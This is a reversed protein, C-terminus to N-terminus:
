YLFGFMWLPIANRYVYETDDKVVFGKGDPIDAIQKNGKKHGGIEFTLGDVEFDSVPSASVFHDIRTWAFFITERLTGVNPQSDSLIYAQNPNQLYVKEIKELVKIGRAKERLISILGAKELLLFYKPLTNRSIDLDRALKAYNPKFPVSQALVYLLKRLKQVSAVDMDAFKPIDDEVIQKLVGNLRHAYNGEQFFPFYGQQLYDRFAQLPRVEDIPFVVKGSLIEALTYNPLQWRYRINVYERFSLGPLYYELKRRSLDAGGKELELISSGSYVVQLDPIKDYINKIEVSWGKYKHIEDIYLRKGGHLVFQRALDELRHTTFYFDDAVVYLTTSLDDYLRIHQLMLTTKGVGRSGLIALLRANWDITNHKERIFTTDVRNILAQSTEFLTEMVSHAQFESCLYLFCEFQM